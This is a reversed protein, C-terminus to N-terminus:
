SGDEPIEANQGAVGEPEDQRDKRQAVKEAQRALKEQQKQRKARERDSRQMRYNPKFAM